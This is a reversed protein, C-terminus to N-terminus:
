QARADLVKGGPGFMVGFLRMRGEEFVVNDYYWVERGKVAQVSVPDGLAEHVREMTSANVILAAERFSLKGEFKRGLPKFNSALVLSQIRDDMEGPTHLKIETVKGGEVILEARRGGSETAVTTNYLWRETGGGKITAFPKGVTALANASPKGLLPSFVDPGFAPAGPRVIAEQETAPSDAGTGPVPPEPEGAQTPQGAQDPQGVTLPMSCVVNFNKYPFASHLRLDYAGPKPPAAIPSTGEDERAFQRMTAYGDPVGAPVITMWYREGPEPKLPTPHHVPFVQGPQVTNSVLAMSGETCTAHFSPAPPAPTATCGGLAMAAAVLLFATITSSRM